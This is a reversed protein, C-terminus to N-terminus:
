GSFKIFNDGNNVSIHDKSVICQRFKLVCCWFRWSTVLSSLTLKRIQPNTMHMFFMSNRSSTNKIIMLMHATSNASFTSLSDNKGLTQMIHLLSVMCEVTALTFNNGHFCIVHYRLQKILFLQWNYEVLWRFLNSSLIYVHWNRWKKTNKM